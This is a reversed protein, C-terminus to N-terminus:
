SVCSASANSTEFQGLMQSTPGAQFRCQTLMETKSPLKEVPEVYQGQLLNALINVFSHAFSVLYSFLCACM